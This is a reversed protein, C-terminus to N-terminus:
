LIAAGMSRKAKTRFSFLSKRDSSHLDKHELLELDKYDEFLYEANATLFWAHTTVETTPTWATWDTDTFIITGTLLFAYYSFTTTVPTIWGYLVAHIFVTGKLFVTYPWLVKQGDWVTSPPIDFSLMNIFLLKKKRRTLQLHFTNGNIVTQYSMTSLITM